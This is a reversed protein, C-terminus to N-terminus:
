DDMSRLRVLQVVTLVAFVAAVAAFIWGILSNQFLMLAAFVVLATLRLWRTIVMTQKDMHSDEASTPRDTPSDTPRATTRGTPGTGTM